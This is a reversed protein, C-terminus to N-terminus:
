PKIKTIEPGNHNDQPVELATATKPCKLCYKLVKIKNEPCKPCKHVIQGTKPYNPRTLFM